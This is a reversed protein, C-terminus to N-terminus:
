RGLMTRAAGSRNQSMNWKGELREIRIELGVVACLQDEVFDAPEHTMARPGPRQSEHQRTLEDLHARLFAPEDRLTVMGAAHVAIYNWTPVVRGQEAEAPYWNPTLYANPGTFLVIASAAGRALARAHPSARPIHGSLTGFRGCTRDLVLPLHTAFMNSDDGACTVLAALPYAEVFAHLTVLDDEVLTSPLYM